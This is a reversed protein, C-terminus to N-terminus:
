SMKDQLYTDENEPIVSHARHSAVPCQWSECKKVEGSLKPQSVVGYKANIPHKRQRWIRSGDSGTMILMTFSCRKWGASRARPCRYRRTGNIIRKRQYSNNLVMKLGPEVRRIQGSAGRRRRYISSCVQSSALENNTGPGRHDRTTQAEPCSSPGAPGEETHSVGNECVRKMAEQAAENVAKELIAPNNQLVLSTSSAQAISSNSPDMCIRVLYFNAPLVRRNYNVNDVQCSSPPEIESCRCNRLM